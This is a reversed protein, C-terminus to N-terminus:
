INCRYYNYFKHYKRIFRYQMRESKQYHNQLFTKHKIFSNLFKYKKIDFIVSLKFKVQQNFTYKLFKAFTHLSKFQTM